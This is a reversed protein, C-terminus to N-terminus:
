GSQEDNSDEGELHIVFAALAANWLEDVYRRLSELGETRARYIRRTGERKVAVLGAERLVRLHQSVSPQSIGVRGVLEGV